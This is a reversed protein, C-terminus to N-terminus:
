YWEPAELAEDPDSRAVLMAELDADLEAALPAPVLRPARRALLTRIREFWGAPRPEAPPFERALESAAEPAFDLGGFAALRALCAQPEQELERRTLPLVGSAVRDLTRDTMAELLARWAAALRAEGYVPHAVLDRAESLALSEDELCTLRFRDFAQSPQDLFVLVRKESYDELALEPPSPDHLHLDLSGASRVIAPAAEASTPLANRELCSALAHGGCGPQSLVVLHAGRLAARREATRTKLDHPRWRHYPNDRVDLDIRSPEIGHKWAVYHFSVQDRSSGAEIESWWEESLAVVAPDHHRRLIVMCAPISLGDPYGAERYRSVQARLIEPDDKGLRACAEAEQYISGRREPHEFMVVSQGSLQSAAFAGLDGRLELNGDVWVSWDYSPLFRHPLIKPAKARRVPVGGAAAAPLLRVDWGEIQRDPNDSFCVLDCGSQQARPPRLDDCSGAVATYIVGREETM